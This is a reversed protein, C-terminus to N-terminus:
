SHGAPSKIERTITHTLHFRIDEIVKTAPVGDLIRHDFTLLIRSNGNRALPDVGVITTNPGLLATGECRKFVSLSM